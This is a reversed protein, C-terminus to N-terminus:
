LEDLWTSRLSPVLRNQHPLFGLKRSFATSDPESQSFRQGHVVIMSTSSVISSCMRLGLEVASAIGIQTESRNNAWHNLITYDTYHILWLNWKMMMFKTLSGQMQRLLERFQLSRECSLFSQCIYNMTIWHLNAIKTEKTEPWFSNRIIVPGLM